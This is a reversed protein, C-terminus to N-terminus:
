LTMYVWLLILDRNTLPSLRKGGYRKMLLIPIIIFLIAVIISFLLPFFTEGTPRSLVISFIALILIFYGFFIILKYLTEGNPLPMVEKKHDM